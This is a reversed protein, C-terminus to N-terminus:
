LPGGSYAPRTETGRLAGGGASSKLSTRAAGPAGDGDFSSLGCYRPSRSTECGLKHGDAWVAGRVSSGIKLV